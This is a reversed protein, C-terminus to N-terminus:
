FVITWGPKSAQEKSYSVGDVISGGGDVLTISGGKNSLQMPEAIEIKRTEGPAITGDLVFQNRNRDRLVWGSVDVPAPSPNILTVTEVDPTGASNAVAAIIRLPPGLPVPVPQPAPTPVPQPQPPVIGAAHGQADTQWSQNQFGLFVATWTGDAFQFLLAGDQWVGDDDQWNPANGQNMHVDHIGQTPKFGFYKDKQGANKFFSGFAYVRAGDEDFARQVLADIKDNLDNDNGPITSPLTAMEFRKVFGEGKVFDIAVGGPQSPVAHYGDGFGALQALMPHQFSPKVAYLVESGDQSQTNVAIRYPTDGALVKLEYHNSSPTAFRRDVARGVLVGYKPVPM